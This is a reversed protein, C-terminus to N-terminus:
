FADPDGPKVEWVDESHRKTENGLRIMAVQRDAFVAALAQEMGQSQEPYIILVKESATVPHDPIESPLLEEKWVPQYFFDKMEVCMDGAPRNAKKVPRAFRRVALDRLTVCVMGNEDFISLHYLDRGAAQVYAYMRTGLPHLWQVSGVSYPLMLTNEKGNRTLAIGAITQLAGDLLPPHLVYRSFGTAQEPPLNLLSIAERESAWLQDVTQFTPGYGIGGERFLRYLDQRSFSIRCKKKIEELSLRVIQAGYGSEQREIEGRAHIEPHGNRRHQVTFRISEGEKTLIVELEKATQEVAFPKLWVVNRLTFSAGPDNLSFAARVMELQAAGPLFATGLVQHDQLVFDAASFTKRFGLGKYELCLGPDIRDLLPHLAATGALAEQSTTTVWCRERAFPYTPLSIRKASQETWLASWDVEVGHCWGEALKSLQGHKIWRQVFESMMEDGYLLKAVGQADTANGRYMIGHEGKRQCYESLRDRLEAVSSVVFALREEMAERGIQLTFAIDSLRQKEEKQSATRAALGSAYQKVLYEALSAITEYQSFLELSLDMQYHHQFHQSIQVLHVPDLGFATFDEDINVEREEVKVMQAILDILMHRIEEKSVAQKPLVTNEAAQEKELFVLLKRAYEKLREDNKASLVIIQPEQQNTVSAIAESDFEEVIVHANAGGAGFSSIAAIRPGQKWETLERQVYFPSDHFPIHPNLRGAHLSPVLQKHKMQLIIKTIGAIGAASELHGINSKISGISCFQKKDTQAGYAKMLGAIEIPDGLSTGTGHAEVYSVQAPDVNADQLARAIVEAQANPNPVTYGNTKGGHNIATGKIVAYVHDGDRLAKSLPKLLVAGVGEGPVYGDGGEGFSRCRGDSSAFNADCLQLYKAPHITVNVGGAIALNCEGRQISACALHLATLSSSCMTDLAISPGSFNFFYSVRNAISAYSSHPAIANGKLLEEAGLLQYQGYMVGVFVGVKQKDLQQRTYGGDEITEWATQLFLREQPDLLKAERPSINFFLPDFKDVDRIFGGWKSYSKGKQDRHRYIR